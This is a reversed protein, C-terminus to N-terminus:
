PVVPVVLVVANVSRSLSLLITTGSGLGGGSGLGTFFHIKLYVLKHTKDGQDTVSVYDWEWLRKM